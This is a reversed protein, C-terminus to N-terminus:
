RGSRRRCRPRTSRRDGRPRRRGGRRGGPDPDRAAGGSWPSDPDSGSSRPPVTEDDAAGGPLAVLTPRPPGRARLRDVTRNRAISRLWTGLSALAPDFLEARNWLALFTEQM